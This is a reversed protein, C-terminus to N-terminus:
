ENCLLYAVCAVNGRKIIIKKSNAEKIISDGENITSFCNYSLPFEMLFWKEKSDIYFMPRKANHSTKTIVGKVKQHVIECRAKDNEKYEIYYHYYFFFATLFYLVLVLKRRKNIIRKIKDELKNM